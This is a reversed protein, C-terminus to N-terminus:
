INIILDIKNDRNLSQTLKTDYWNDIVLSSDMKWDGDPVSYYYKYDEILIQYVTESVMSNVRVPNRDPELSQVFRGHYLEEKKLRRM